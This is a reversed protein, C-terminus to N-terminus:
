CIGSVDIFIIYIFDVTIFNLQNRVTVGINILGFFLAIIKFLEPITLSSSSHTTFVYYTAHIVSNAFPTRYVCRIKCIELLM